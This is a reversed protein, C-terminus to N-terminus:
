HRNALSPGRECRPLTLGPELSLLRKARIKPCLYPCGKGVFMRPSGSCSRCAPVVVVVIGEEIEGAEVDGEEEGMGTCGPVSNGEVSSLGASLSPVCGSSSCDGGEEIEGAEVDGEEEEVGM